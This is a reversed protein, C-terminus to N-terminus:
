SFAKKSTKNDDEGAGRDGAQQGRRRRVAPIAKARLRLIDPSRFLAHRGFHGFRQRTTRVGSDDYDRYVFDDGGSIL